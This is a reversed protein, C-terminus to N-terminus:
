IQSDLESLVGVGEELVSIQEWVESTSLQVVNSEWSVTSKAHHAHLFLPLIRVCCSSKSNTSFITSSTASIQVRTWLFLILVKDQLNAKKTFAKCLNM